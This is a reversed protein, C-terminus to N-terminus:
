QDYRDWHERPVMVTQLRGQVLTSSHVVMREKEGQGNLQFVVADGAMPIGFKRLRAELDLEEQRARYAESKLGEFQEQAARATRNANDFATNFDHRMKRGRETNNIFEQMQEDVWDRIKRGAEEHRTEFRVNSVYDSLDIVPGGERQVGFNSFTGPGAPDFGFLPVAKESEELAIRAAEEPTM